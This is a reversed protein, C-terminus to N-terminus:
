SIAENLSLSVTIEKGGRFIVAQVKQGIRCSILMEYLEDSNTIKTGNISILIDGEQLATNTVGTIRLGDPLKWYNQYLDTVEEVAAGICPRGAVFGRRLLQDVVTKITTSPIVYALDEGDTRLYKGIRPSIMGLVQGSETFLFGANEGTAASTQLLPLKKGCIDLPKEADFVTGGSFSSSCLATVKSGTEPHDVNSFAAATLGTVRVYLVALDSFADSGVLAARHVTGDPLTVLIRDTKNVLHAYTLIYGNEQLVLGYGQREESLQVKVLSNTAITEVNTEPEPKELDADDTLDMSIDAKPVSPATELAANNGLQPLDKNPQLQIPLTEQPQQQQLQALLRLNIIGLASAIGGLFIVLMLLVAVLPNSKKPPTTNGTQYTGADWIDVYENKSNKQKM